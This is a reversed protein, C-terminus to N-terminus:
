CRPASSPSRSPSPTAATATRSTGPSVESDFFAGRVTARGAAKALAGDLLDPVASFILLALGLLLHGSGIAWATPVALLLGTATLVDPSVGTRVLAAGFPRV